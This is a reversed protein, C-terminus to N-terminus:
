RYILITLLCNCDLGPVDHVTSAPLFPNSPTLVALYFDTNGAKGLLRLFGNSAEATGVLYNNRHGAVPPTTRRGRQRSSHM